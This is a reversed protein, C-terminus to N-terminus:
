ETGGNSKLLAAVADCGASTGSLKTFTKQSEEACRLPTWGGKTKANVDAKNGLLLKVIEPRCLSAALHLATEGNKDKVNADAGKELLLAVLENSDALVAFHLPTRGFPNTVNAVHPDEKLLTKVRNLDGDGCARFITDKRPIAPAQKLIDMMATDKHMKATSMPTEGTQDRVNVDAGNALLIRVVEPYGGEVAVVLAPWGIGDQANVDAGKSLLFEVVDKKGERVALSLPTWGHEDNANLLEPQADLLAKVQNLDGRAAADYIDGTPLSGSSSSSRTETDVVRSILFGIVLLFVFILLLGTGTKIKKPKRSQPPVPLAYIPPPKQTLDRGCFRCVTAEQKITEACFPCQKTDNAVNTPSSKAPADPTIETRVSPVSLSQGCKPCQVVLGAGAEEIVINQGCHDCDFSIDSATPTETQQPLTSAEPVTLEKGCNTCHVAQGVAGQNAELHQGCGDCGFRIIM